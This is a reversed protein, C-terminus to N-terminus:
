APLQWGTVNYITLVASIALGALGIAFLSGRGGRATDGSRAAMVLTAVSTLVLVNAVAVFLALPGVHGTYLAEMMSKGDFLQAYAILPLVWAVGTTASALALRRRSVPADHTTRLWVLWAGFCLALSGMVVCAHFRPHLYAPIRTFTYIGLDPVLVPADVRADYRIVVQNRTPADLVFVGNGAPQWPGAGAVSLLGSSLDVRLIGNGLALLDAVSEATTFVRRDLRYWGALDRGAGAVPRDPLPRREGLFEVLFANAYGSASAVAPSAPLKVWPAIMEIAAGGPGPSRPEGMVGIYIGADLEPILTMWSHFGTWNGGHAVTQVDGWKEDFFAMGVGTTEPANDARRTHLEELSRESLWAPRAADAGHSARLHAMMYKAMDDGTSVISGAAAVAPNIATFPTAHLEGRADITAPKGLAAPEDVDVLLETQTMGLPEFLLGHMARDIPLGTTDEIVRGLVALGFNSYVVRAGAPRVYAPRLADFQDAPLRAATPRDAGIFFFRDEFGATHTVLHHLTVEVGDNAPLAYDRLYRNVPEDLSGLRGEEILKQLLSTTFTKTVSGIRFQTRAPDVPDAAAYDARGYGKSLIVQGDRVVTVVLGSFENRALAGDFMNDAWHTVSAADIAPPAQAAAAVCMQSTVVCAAVTAASARRIARLFSLQYQRLNSM